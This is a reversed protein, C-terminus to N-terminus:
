IETLLGPARAGDVIWGHGLLPHRARQRHLPPRGTGVEFRPGGLWRMARDVSPQGPPLSMGDEIPPHGPPLMTEDVPPHGPSLMTEDIPPHGPPLMTEDIPPHGPPLEYGGDFGECSEQADGEPSPQTSPDQAPTRAAALFLALAGSGLVVSLWARNRRARAEPDTTISEQRTNGGHENTM